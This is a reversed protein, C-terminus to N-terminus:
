DKRRYRTGVPGSLTDADVRTLVLAADNDDSLRVRIRDGDIDYTLEREVGAVPSSLVVRGDSHFTYASLGMEDEFTGKFGGGCAALLLALALMSMATKM